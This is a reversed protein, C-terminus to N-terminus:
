TIRKRMGLVLGAVCAGVLWPWPDNALYAGVTLQEAGVRGLHALATDLRLRRAAMTSELDRAREELGITKM